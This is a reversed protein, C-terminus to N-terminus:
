IHHLIGSVLLHWQAFSMGVASGGNVLLNRTKDLLNQGHTNPVENRGHVEVSLVNARRFIMFTSTSRDTFFHAVKGGFTGPVQSPRAVFLTFEVDSEIDSYEDLKEIHVWDFGKGESTGPGPIDIRIFDGEAVPRNVSSGNKDHISFCSAEIMSINHWENVSLLKRVATHYAAKAEEKSSFIKEEEADTQQGIQQTPILEQKEM